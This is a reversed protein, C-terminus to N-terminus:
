SLLKCTLVARSPTRSVTHSPCDHWEPQSESSTIEPSDSKRLVGRQLRQKPGINLYVAMGAEEVHRIERVMRNPKQPMEKPSGRSSRPRCRCLNNRGDGIYSQIPAGFSIEAYLAELTRNSLPRRVRRLCSRCFYIGAPEFTHNPSM